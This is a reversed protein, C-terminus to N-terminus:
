QASRLLPKPHSLRTEEDDSSTTTHQTGTCPPCDQSAPRQHENSPSSPRLHGSPCTPHSRSLQETGGSDVRCRRRRSRDPGHSRAAARRMARSCPSARRDRRPDARTRSSSRPWSGPASGSSRAPVSPCGRRFRHNM